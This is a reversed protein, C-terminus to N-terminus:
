LMIGSLSRILDNVLKSRDWSTDGPTISIAEGLEDLTSRRQAAAVIEFIKRGLSPDAFTLHQLRHLIRRCTEPLGKLLDRLSNIIECDTNLACILDIQFAVWLFRFVSSNPQVCTAAYQHISWCKMPEKNWRM